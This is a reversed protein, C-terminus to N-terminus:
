HFRLGHTGPIVGFIQSSLELFEDSAVVQRFYPDNEFLKWREDSKMQSAQGDLETPDFSSGGGIDSVDNVGKDTTVLGLDRACDLRYTQDRCWRHYNVLIKNNGLYNTEGLFERAYAKWLDIVEDSLWGYQLRSAFCNFADRLILVNFRRRSKGLWFDHNDEVAEIHM